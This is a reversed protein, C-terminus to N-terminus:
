ASRDKDAGPRILGCAKAYKLFVEYAAVASICLGALGDLFGAKLIYTRFFRFPPHTALAFLNGARGSRRLERAALDAFRRAQALHDRVSGHSFHLIDGSLFGVRAAADMEVRYHPNTGGYRGKRTDWLRLKRDPYWGSHRIRRGGYHNRRNMHYGDCAWRAKAQAISSALEPSLQEDADISLVHPHSAQAV